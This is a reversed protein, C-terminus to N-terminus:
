FEELLQQKMELRKGLILPAPFNLSKPYYEIRYQRKKLHTTNINMRDNKGITFLM